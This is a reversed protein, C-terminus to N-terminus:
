QEEEGFEMTAQTLDEESPILDHQYKITRQVVAKPTIVLKGGQMTATITVALKVEGRALEKLFDPYCEEVAQTMDKDVVNRIRESNIQTTIDVTM